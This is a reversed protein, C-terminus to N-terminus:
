PCAGGSPPVYAGGGSATGMNRSGGWVIMHTGTWVAAHNDRASPALLM